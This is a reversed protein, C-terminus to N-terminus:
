PALGQFVAGHQRRFHQGAGTNVWQEFRLQMGRATEYIHQVPRVEQRPAGKPTGTTGSTLLVLTSTAAARGPSRGRCAAILSDIGGAEGEGGWATFLRVGEAPVRSILEDDAVVAEIGERAIVEALQPAAFETNLLVVRM